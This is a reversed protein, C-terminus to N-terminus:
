RDVRPDLARDILLSVPFIPQCFLAHAYFGAEGLVVMIELVPNEARGQGDQMDGDGHGDRDILALFRQADLWARYLTLEVSIHAARLDIYSIKQCIGDQHPMNDGQSFFIFPQGRQQRLEPERM